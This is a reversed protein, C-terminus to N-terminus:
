INYINHYHSVPFEGHVPLQHSKCVLVPVYVMVKLLTLSPWMLLIFWLSSGLCNSYEWINLPFLFWSLDQCICEQAQQFNWHQNFDDNTHFSLYYTSSMQLTMMQIFSSKEFAEVYQKNIKESNFRFFIAGNKKSPITCKYKYMLTIICIWTSMFFDIYTYIRQM